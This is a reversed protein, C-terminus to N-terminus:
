TVGARMAVASGHCEGNRAKDRFASRARRIGMLRARACRGLDTCGLGTGVSNPACSREWASTSRTGMGTSTMEIGPVLRLESTAAFFPRGLLRPTMTHALILVGSVRKRASREAANAASEDKRVTKSARFFVPM